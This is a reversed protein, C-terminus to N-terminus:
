EAAQDVSFTIAGTDCITSWSDADYIHFSLEIDNVKDIGNEELDSSFITIDDFSKKENYVTASFVPDVMFGNISMDDCNIGINRGSTNEIYLLVGTGWFSNEDVYKGIIRVGDQNWLEYGSEEEDAQLDMENYKSTQITVVDSDFLADYTDSDYVHFYIEIQGINSIGAAKLDSSMMYMTDNAKKGAAVESAFLDSIMYNNVILATCGVMVNKDTNNELLLKVGTGMFADHEIGTATVKIGDQDILIQEEISLDADEEAVDAAGASDDASADSAADSGVESASVIDKTSDNSEGSGLASLGFAFLIAFVGLKKMINKKM